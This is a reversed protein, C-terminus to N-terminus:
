IILFLTFSFVNCKLSYNSYYLTLTWPHLEPIMANYYVIGCHSIGSTYMIDKDKLNVTMFLKQMNYINCSKVQLQFSIEEGFLHLVSIM